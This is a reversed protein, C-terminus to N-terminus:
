TIICLKKNLNNYMDQRKRSEEKQSLYYPIGFVIIFAILEAM